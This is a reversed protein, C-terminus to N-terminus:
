EEGTVKPWVWYLKDRILEGARLFVFVSCMYVNLLFEFPIHAYPIRELLGSLFFTLYGFVCWIAIGYAVYDLVTM